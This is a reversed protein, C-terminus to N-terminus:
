KQHPTGKSTFLHELESSGFPLCNEVELVFDWWNNELQLTDTSKEAQM